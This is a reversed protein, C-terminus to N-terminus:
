ADSKERARLLRRVSEKRAAALVPWWSMRGAVVAIDFERTAVTFAHGSAQRRVASIVAGFVRNVETEVSSAIM